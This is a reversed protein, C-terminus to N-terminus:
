QGQGWVRPSSGKIPSRSVEAMSKDGYAHPHDQGHRNKLRAGVSTGMRTPIIRVFSVSFFKIIAQGWVRPSSGAYTYNDETLTNKDGYAHPHDQCNNVFRKRIFRTGMRTPIIGPLVATIVQVRGQGWVRPSSGLLGECSPSTNWKDGYAHPHDWRGSSKRLTDDRTGM